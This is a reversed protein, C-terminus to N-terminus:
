VVEDISIEQTPALETSLSLSGQFQASGPCVFSNSAEGALVDDGAASGFVVTENAPATFLGDLQPTTYHCNVIGIFSECATILEINTFVLENTLENINADLPFGGMILNCSSVPLGTAPCKQAGNQLFDLSEFSGVENTVGEEVLFDDITGEGVIQNCGFFSGTGVQFRFTGSAVQVHETGSTGTDPEISDNSAAATSALLSLVAVATWAALALKKWIRM